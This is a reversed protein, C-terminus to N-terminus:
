YSSPSMFSQVHTRILSPFVRVIRYYKITDESLNVMIKLKSVKKDRNLTQLNGSGQRSPPYCM